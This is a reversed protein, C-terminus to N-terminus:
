RPPRKRALYFTFTGEAVPSADHYRRLLAETLWLNARSPSLIWRGTLLRPLLTPAGLYHGWELARLAQPAFYRFSRVVEFGTRALRESWTQEHDLHAVRSMRQFWRAYARGLPQLRGAGLWRPLSLESLYGPNPVTFVWPAGPQLVRAVEKLVEVVNPIHELVSNSFGSGLSNAAVPLLEGRSELLLRYAGRRRAELLSARHLDVGVDVGQPFVVEAFHGDGCGVDLIPRPFALGQYLEAEVSRLLARFYPLQRLHARLLSVSDMM